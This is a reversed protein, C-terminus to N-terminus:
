NLQKHKKGDEHRRSSSGIIGVFNCTECFYVDKSENSHADQLHQKLEAINMRQENTKDCNGYPCARHNSSLYHLRLTSESLATTTCNDFRCAHVKNAELLVDAKNIRIKKSNLSENKIAQNHHNHNNNNNNLPSL